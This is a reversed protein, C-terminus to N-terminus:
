RILDEVLEVGDIAADIDGDDDLESNPDAYFDSGCAALYLRAAEDLSHGADATQWQTSGGDYLYNGTDGDKGIYKWDCSIYGSDFPVQCIPASADSLDAQFYLLEGWSLHIRYIEM